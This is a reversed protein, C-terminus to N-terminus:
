VGLKELITKVEKDMTTEVVSLWWENAATQAYDFVANYNNKKM